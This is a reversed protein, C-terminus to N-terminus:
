RIDNPRYIQHARWTSLLPFNLIFVIDYDSFRLSEKLFVPRYLLIINFLIKRLCCIVSHM